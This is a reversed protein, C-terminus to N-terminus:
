VHPFWNTNMNNKILGGSAIPCDGYSPLIQKDLIHAAPCVFNAAAGLAEPPELIARPATAFFRRGV